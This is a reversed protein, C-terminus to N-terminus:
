FQIFIFRKKTIVMDFNLLQKIKEFDPKKGCWITYMTDYEPTVLIIKKEYCNIVVSCDAMDIGTLWFFNSDQRFKLDVDSYDRSKSPQGIIHYYNKDDKMLEFLKNRNIMTSKQLVSFLKNNIISNM